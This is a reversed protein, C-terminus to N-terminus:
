VYAVIKGEPYHGEWGCPFAGIQYVEFLDNMFSSAKGNIARNVACNHLDAVVDHFFHKNMEQERVNQSIIPLIQELGSPRESEQYTYYKEWVKSMELERIDKWNYEDEGYVEEYALYEAKKLDHIVTIKNSIDTKSQIEANKSFLIIEEVLIHHIGYNM